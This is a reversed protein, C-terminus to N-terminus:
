HSHITIPEQQMERTDVERGKQVMAKKILYKFSLHRDSALRCGEMLYKM